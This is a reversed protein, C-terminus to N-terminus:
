EGGEVVPEIWHTVRGEWAKNYRNVLRKAKAKTYSETGGGGKGKVLLSKWKIRYM